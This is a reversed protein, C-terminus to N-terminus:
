VATFTRPDFSWQDGLMVDYKPPDYLTMGNGASFTLESFYIKGDVDYLDVRVQEFPASLTSAIELMKTFTAPKKIPKDTTQKISTLDLQQWNVDYFNQRHDGFRDINLCILFPKGKFSYLKYDELKGNAPALYQECLIRPVIKKYQREKGFSQYYNLQMWETLKKKADDWDFFNKDPCIINWGSGHTPKLVFRQPLTSVDIDEVRDYLGYLKTLYQAGVQKEVFSRVEYKDVYPWLNEAQKSIKFVQVKENFGVPHKWNLKQSFRQQYLKSTFRKDRLYTGYEHLVNLFSM